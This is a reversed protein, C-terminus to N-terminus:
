ERRWLTLIEAGGGISKVGRIKEEVLCALFPWLCALFASSLYGRDPFYYSSHFCYSSSFSPTPPIKFNHLLSFISSPFINLNHALSYFIQPPFIVFIDLLSYFLNLFSFLLITSSSSFLFSLSLPLYFM